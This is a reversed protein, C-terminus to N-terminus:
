RGQLGYPSGGWLKLPARPEDVAEAAVPADVAGLLKEPYLRAKSEVCAVIGQEGDVDFESRAVERVQMLCTEDGM